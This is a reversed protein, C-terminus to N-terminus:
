FIGASMGCSETANAFNFFDPTVLVVIFAWSEFPSRVVDAALSCVHVDCEADGQLLKVEFYAVLERCGFDFHSEQGSDALPM